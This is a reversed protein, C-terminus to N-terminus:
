NQFLKDGTLSTLDSAQCITDLTVQTTAIRAVSDADIVILVTQSEVVLMNIRFIITQPSM